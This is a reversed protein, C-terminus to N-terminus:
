VTHFPVRVVSLLPKVDVRLVAKISGYSLSLLGTFNHDLDTNACKDKGNYYYVQDWFHLNIM